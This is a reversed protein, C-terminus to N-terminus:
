HTKELEQHHVRLKEEAKLHEIIEYLLLAASDLFYIDDETFDRMVTSYVGLVGFPNNINGIPVTIGSVIGHNRLFESHKFRTEIELDKLIVPKRTLLTYGSHSKEKGRIITNGALGEEWGSGARIILNGDPMLELITSFETDLGQAILRASKKLIAQFDKCAISM